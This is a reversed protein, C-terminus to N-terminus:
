FKAEKGKGFIGRRQQQPKIVFVKDYAFQLMAYAAHLDPSQMKANSVKTNVPTKGSISRYFSTEGRMFSIGGGTLFIDFNKGLKTEAKRFFRSIYLILHEVRADIIQKLLDYPYKKLRGEPSKAYMYAAGNNEELGFSYQRKLLEATETDLKMVYSIDSTISGGGMDIRTFYLIADGYILSVNTTYYGIDVLVAISDRKEEPVLYLAEALPEPIFNDVRIGLHRTLKIVDNLFARSALTYSICGRMKRTAVNLPDLYVNGDDLYFWAPWECVMSYDRDYEFRRTRSILHDVDREAVKGKVDVQATRSVMKLFSGPIGVEVNKIRVGAQREVSEIVQELVYYVEDKDVWGQKKIGQYNIQTCGLVELGMRPKREAITCSIKSTGFEIITKTDKM